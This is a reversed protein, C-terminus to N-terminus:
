NRKANRKRRRLSIGDIEASAGALPFFSHDGFCMRRDWGPPERWANRAVPGVDFSCEWSPRLQSRHSDHQRCFRTDSDVRATETGTRSEHRGTPIALNPVVDAVRQLFRAVEQQPSTPIVHNPRAKDLILDPRPDFTLYCPTLLLTLDAGSQVGAPDDPPGTTDWETRQVRGNKGSQLVTADVGVVDTGIVDGVQRAHSRRRLQHGDVRLDPGVKFHRAFPDAADVVDVRAGAQPRKDPDRRIRRLVVDGGSCPQGQEIPIM